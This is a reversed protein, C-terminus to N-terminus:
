TWLLYIRLFIKYPKQYSFAQQHGSPLCKGIGERLSGSSFAMKGVNAGVRIENVLVDCVKLHYGQTNGLELGSARRVKTRNKKQVVVIWPGYAGEPVGVTTGEGQEPNGPEHNDCAHVVREGELKADEDWEM